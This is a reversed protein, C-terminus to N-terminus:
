LSKIGTYFNFIPIVLNSKKFNVEITVEKNHIHNTFLLKGIFHIM